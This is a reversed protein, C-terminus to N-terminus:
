PTGTPASLEVEREDLLTVTVAGTLSATADHFEAPTEVRRGNLKTIFTTEGFGAAAAPSGPDVATVVVGRPFAGLVSTPLYRRRATPYDVHLGRWAPHRERTAVIRSDDYVPWKGLRCDLTFV